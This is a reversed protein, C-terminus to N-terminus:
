MLSDIFRSVAAIAAPHRMIVLNSGSVLCASATCVEMEIGREDLSGWEPTEAEPSMAEKVGWTEPSVPTVIPMQLQADSQSLAAAKMRDLTSSLYEFGYGAAAAGANMCVADAPVGQQSLLVNLQKALNIDVASEAAIKQGCALVASTGVTKYNEERASLVLINRDQLAGAIAPLLLADKEINNCGMVLMPLEVAEAVARALAVCAEVSTNEGNPDASEFRLCVASAGEMSQAKVAMDVVSDCGAYFARIGPSVIGELGKDCIEVAVVPKNAIPADFTCFPLVNEGGIVIRREGTGLAVANIRANFVQKKPAFAMNYEGQKRNHGPCPGTAHFVSGASGRM